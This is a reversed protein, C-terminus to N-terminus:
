GGIKHEAEGEPRFLQHPCHQSLLPAPPPPPATRDSPLLHWRPPQRPRGWGRQGDLMWGLGRHPLYHPSCRCAWGPRVLPLNVSGLVYELALDQRTPQIGGGGKQQNGPCRKFSPFVFGFPAIVQTCNAPLPSLPSLWLGRGATTEPAPRSSPVMFHAQGGPM